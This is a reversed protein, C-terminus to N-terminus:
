LSANTLFIYMTLSVFQYCCAGFRCELSVLSESTYGELTHRAVHLLLLRRGAADVKPLLSFVSAELATLDDRLAESLTMRQVYKEPGFVECRSEWYNVFRRAALQLVLSLYRHTLTGENTTFQVM